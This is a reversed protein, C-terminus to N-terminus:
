AKALCHDYPPSAVNRCKSSLRECGSGDFHYFLPASRGEIVFATCRAPPAACHRHSVRGAIADCCRRRYRSAFHLARRALELFILAINLIAGGGPMFDLLRSHSAPRRRHRSAIIAQRRMKSSTAHLQPGQFPRQRPMAAPM